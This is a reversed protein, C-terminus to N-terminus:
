INVKLELGLRLNEKVRGHHKRTVQKNPLQYELNMEVTMYQVCFGFNSLQLLDLTKIFNNIM